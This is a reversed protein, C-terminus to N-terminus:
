WCPSGTAADGAPREQGAAHDNTGARPARKRANGMCRALVQNLPRGVHMQLFAALQNEDRALRRQRDQLDFVHMAGRLSARDEQRRHGAEIVTRLRERVEDIEDDSANEVLESHRVIQDLPPSRTRLWDLEVGM